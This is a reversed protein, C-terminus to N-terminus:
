KNAICSKKVLRRSSGLDFGRQEDDENGYGSHEQSQGEPDYGRQGEFGGHM